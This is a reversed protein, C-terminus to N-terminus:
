MPEGTIESMNRGAGVSDSSDPASHLLVHGAYGGPHPPGTLHGRM